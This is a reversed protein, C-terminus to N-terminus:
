SQTQIDEDTLAQWRVLEAKLLTIQEEFWPVHAIDVMTASAYYGEGGENTFQDAQVQAAIAQAPAAQKIAQEHMRIEAKINAIAATAVKHLEARAIAKVAQPDYAFVRLDSNPVNIEKGGFKQAYSFRTVGPLTIQLEKKTTPKYTNPRSGPEYIQLKDNWGIALALGLVEGTKILVEFKPYENMLWSSAEYRDM